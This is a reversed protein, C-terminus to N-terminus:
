LLTANTLGVDDNGSRTPQQLMQLLSRIKIDTSQSHQYVQMVKAEAVAQNPELRFSQQIGAGDAGSPNAKVLYGIGREFPFHPTFVLFDGEVSHQGQVEVPQENAEQDEVFVALTEYGLTAAALTAHHSINLRVSGNPETPLLLASHTQAFSESSSLMLLFAPLYLRLALPM